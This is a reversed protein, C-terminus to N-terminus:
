GSHTWTRLMLRIKENLDEDELWAVIDERSASGAADEVGAYRAILEVFRSRWPETLSLVGDAVKVARDVM